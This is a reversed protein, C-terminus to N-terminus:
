LGGRSCTSSSSASRESLGTAAVSSREAIQTVAMGTDCFATAAQATSWSSQGLSEEVSTNSSRIHKLRLVRRPCSRVAAGVVVLVVTHAVVDVSAPTCSQVVLGGPRRATWVRRHWVVRWLDWWWRWVQGRRRRRGHARRRQRRRPGSRGWWRRWRRGRWGQRWGPQRRRVAEVPAAEVSAAEAPAVAASAAAAAREVRHGQRNGRSVAVAAMGGGGGGGGGDCGGGGLGGGGLGGDGGGGDGDGLGADGGAPEGM